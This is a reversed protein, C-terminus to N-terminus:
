PKQRISRLLSTGAVKAVDRCTLSYRSSRRLEGGHLLMKSLEPDQVRDSNAIPVEHGSASVFVKNDGGFKDVEIEEIGHLHTTYLAGTTIIASRPELLISLVPIPDITRGLSSPLNLSEPPQDNKYRYYHFVAHSGLSLTAVVPHYSPGDEHPMIGQGPLYENLIVHNPGQHPSCEFATTARLRGLIDPFQNLFSPMDQAFLTSRQLVEGGWIQLRRNGLAKWKQRPTEEIKRLLYTEEASTVFNPIYYAEFCGPLLHASKM